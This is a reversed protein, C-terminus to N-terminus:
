RKIPFVPQDFIVTLQSANFGRIFIEMSDAHEMEVPVSLRWFAQFYYSLAFPVYM